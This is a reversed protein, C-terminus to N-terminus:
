SAWSIVDSVRAIEASRILHFLKSMVSFPLGQFKYFSWWFWSGEQNVSKMTLYSRFEFYWHWHLRKEAQPLYHRKPAIELGRHMREISQFSSITGGNKMLGKELVQIWKNNVFSFTEDPTSFLSIWILKWLKLSRWRISFDKTKEFSLKEANPLTSTTSFRRLAIPTTTTIGNELKM